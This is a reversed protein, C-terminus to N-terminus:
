RATLIASRPAGCGVGPRQSLTLQGRAIEGTWTFTQRDSGVRASSTITTLEVRGGSSVFGTAQWDVSQGTRSTSTARGTITGGRTELEFTVPGCEPGGSSSTGTWRGSTQAEALAGGAVSASLALVAGAGARALFARRGLSAM